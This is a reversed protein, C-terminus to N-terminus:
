EVAAEVVISRATHRDIALSAGGLSILMPFRRRVVTVVTGPVLGIAALRHLLGGSGTVGVM